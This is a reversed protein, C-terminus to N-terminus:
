DSSTDAFLRCLEEAAVFSNSKLRVLKTADYDCLLIEEDPLLSQLEAANSCVSADNGQIVSRYNNLVIGAIKLGRHRAVEVTLLTHNIVGLRNAAVILLPSSLSAALDTLDFTETLPCMLGGAGEIVLYEAADKWSTIGSVLLSQDISRNEHRAALYPVLPAEFRQPCVSDISSDYYGAAHGLRVVDTWIQGGSQDTSAGSCVPKYAGCRYGAARLTAAVLCSVWTKGVDTDTGTVTLTKM